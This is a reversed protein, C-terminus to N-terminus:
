ERKFGGSLDNVFLLILIKPSIQKKLSEKKYLLSAVSAAFARKHFLLIHYIELYSGFIPRKLHRVMSGQMQSRDSLLECYKSKHEWLINRLYESILSKGTRM